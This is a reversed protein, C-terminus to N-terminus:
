LIYCFRSQCVAICVLTRIQTRYIKFSKIHKFCCEVKLRSCYKNRQLEMCNHLMRCFYYLGTFGRKKHKYGVAM